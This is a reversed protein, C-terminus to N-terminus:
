TLLHQQLIKHACAYQKRISLALTSHRKTVRELLGSLAVRPGFSAAPHSFMNNITHRYGGLALMGLALLSPLASFRTYAYM